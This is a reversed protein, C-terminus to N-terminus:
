LSTQKLLHFAVEAKGNWLFADKKLQQTLPQTLSAYHRIFRRYYGTLGLFGRLEKITRPPPWDIMAQVKEPDVAVGECSAIHGLYAM